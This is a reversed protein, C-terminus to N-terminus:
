EDAMARIIKSRESVAEFQEPTLVDKMAQYLSATVRHNNLKFNLKRITRGIEGLRSDIRNAEFGWKGPRISQLKTKELQLTEIQQEIGLM